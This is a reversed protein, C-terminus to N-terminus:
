RNYQNLTKPIFIAPCNIGDPKTVIRNTIERRDNWLCNYINIQEQLWKIDEWLDFLSCCTLQKYGKLRKDDKDNEPNNAIAAIILLFLGFLGIGIISNM